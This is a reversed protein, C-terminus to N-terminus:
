PGEKMDCHGKSLSLITSIIYIIFSSFLKSNNAVFVWIERNENDDDKTKTTINNFSIDECYARKGNLRKLEKGTINITFNEGVQIAGFSTANVGGIKLM